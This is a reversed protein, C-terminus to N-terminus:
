GGTMPPFFAIEDENNIKHDLNVVEMNVACRILSTDSLAKSHKESNKILNSILDKVSNIKPDLEIIEEEIGIQDRVWSFYKINM